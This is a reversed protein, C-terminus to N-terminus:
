RCGPSTRGATTSRRRGAWRPASGRGSRRRLLGAGVPRDVRFRVARTPGGGAGRRRLLTLFAYKPGRSRNGCCWQRLSTPAGDHAGVCLSAGHGAPVSLGLGTRAGTRDPRSCHRGGIGRADPHRSRLQTQRPPYGGHAILAGATSKECPALHVQLCRFRKSVRHGTPKVTQGGIM